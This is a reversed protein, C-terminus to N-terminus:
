RVVVTQIPVLLSNVVLVKLYRGFNGKKSLVIWMYRCDGDLLQCSKCFLSGTSYKQKAMHVVWIDPKYLGIRYHAGPEVPM